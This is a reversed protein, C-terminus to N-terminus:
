QGGRRRARYAAVNARSACRASCYRRSRNSSTDLYARSCRPEQCRGLRDAGLEAVVAALGMVASAAEDEALHLHWRQGDHASLRPHVPYRALLANLLAAVADEDGASAAAFVEALEDRLGRLAPPADPDNVLRVAWEAYSTMDM